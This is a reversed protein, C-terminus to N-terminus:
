FFFLLWGVEVELLLEDDWFLDFFVGVLGWIGDVIVLLGGCCCVCNYLLSMILWLDVLWGVLMIDVRGWLKLCDM